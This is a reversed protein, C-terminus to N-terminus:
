QIIELQIVVSCYRTLISSPLMQLKLTQIIEKFYNRHFFNYQKALLGFTKVVGCKFFFFLLCYILIFNALFHAMQVLINYIIVNFYFLKSFLKTFLFHFITKATQHILFFNLILDDILFWVFSNHKQAALILGNRDLILM